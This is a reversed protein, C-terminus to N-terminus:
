NVVNEKLIGKLNGKEEPDQYFEGKSNDIANIKKKSYNM